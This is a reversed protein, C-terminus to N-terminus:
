VSKNVLSKFTPLGTLDPKHVAYTTNERRKQREIKYEAKSMRRHNSVGYPNYSYWKCLKQNKIERGMKCLPNTNLYNICTRCNCIEKQLKHYEISM